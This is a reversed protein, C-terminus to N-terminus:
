FAGALISDAAAQVTTNPSSAVSASDIHWPFIRNKVGEAYVATSTPDAVGLDFLAVQSPDDSPKYRSPFPSANIAVHLCFEATLAPKTIM